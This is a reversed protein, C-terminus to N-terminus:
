HLRTPHGNTARGKLNYQKRQRDFFFFSEYFSLNTLNLNLIFIMNKVGERVHLRVSTRSSDFLGFLRGHVKLDIFPSLNCFPSEIGPGGSLGFESIM